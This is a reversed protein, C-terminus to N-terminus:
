QRRFASCTFGLIISPGFSQAKKVRVKESSLGFLSLGSSSLHASVRLRKLEKKRRESCSGRRENKQLDLFISDDDTFGM